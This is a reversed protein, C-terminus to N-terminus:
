GKQYITPPHTLPRLRAMMAGASVRRTIHRRKALMRPLGKLAQARGELAGQVRGSGLALGLSLLDHTWIAPCYWLLHPFPYNKLWAWIRNRALLRTKFPSGQVSTASHVHHVVAKPAYLCHWGAWQGRWALDVDEYYAFFDEDFLGIEDLMSRRYLAAAGSPGFVMGGGGASAAPQGWGRNWAIGARDVEIGASDLKNTHTALLIRSAVMGAGANAAAVLETLWDPEARVDNNLTVIFEGRTAHIAMNNATAFGVNRENRMVQVSPWQEALWAASGDRSGNDVVIVNFDGYTQAALAPLYQELWLRGNWNPIIVTVREHM